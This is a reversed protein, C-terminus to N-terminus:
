TTEGSWYRGTELVLAAAGVLGAHQGLGAPVVSLHRTFEMRAFEALAVRAPAFLLEGAQALGGGVVALSIDLLATTSALAAGLATGAREFAAVAVPDGRRADHALARATGDGSTQWGNAAAWAAIAPGRAFAELCGRGGCSCAPGAPDVVVHGVHGANGTHGDILHGGLILGGGVGTSVVIGLMNDVGVGAGQWHEAVAFCIADNHLNVPVDPFRKQLRERL